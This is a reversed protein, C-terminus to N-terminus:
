DATKTSNYEKKTQILVDSVSDKLGIEGYYDTKQAEPKFVECHSFIKDM